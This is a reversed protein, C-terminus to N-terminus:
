SQDRQSDPRTAARFGAIRGPSLLPRPHPPAGAAGAPTAASAGFARHVAFGVLLAACLVLAIMPSAGLGNVLQSVSLVGETTSPPRVADRAAEESPASLPVSPMEGAPAAFDGGPDFSVAGTPYAVGSGGGSGGGSAAGSGGDGAGDAPQRGARSRVRLDSSISPGGEHAVGRFALHWTQDVPTGEEPPAEVLAVGFNPAGADWAAGFVALDLQWRLPEAGEVPTVPATIGCDHQPQNVWRGNQERVPLSTTLCGRVAAQAPNRTGADAGADELTMTGGTVVVSSDVAFTVFTRAHARGGSMAVHLTDAPYPNPTGATTRIIDLGGGQGSPDQGAEDAPQRASSYWAETENRVGQQVREQAWAAGPGAAFLGAVAAVAVASAARRM